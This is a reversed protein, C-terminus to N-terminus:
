TVFNAKLRIETFDRMGVKRYEQRLGAVAQVAKRAQIKKMGMLQTTHPRIEMFDEEDLPLESSSTQGFSRERFESRLLQLDVVTDM